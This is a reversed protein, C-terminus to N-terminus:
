DNGSAMWSESTASRILTIGILHGFVALLSVPLFVSGWTM